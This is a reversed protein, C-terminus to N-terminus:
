RRRRIPKEEAVVVEQRTYREELAAHDGTWAALVEITITPWGWMAGRPHEGGKLCSVLSESCPGQLSARDVQPSGYMSRYSSYLADYKEELEPGSVGHRVTVRRLEGSQFELLMPVQDNSGVKPRCEAIAGEFQWTQQKTACAQEAQEPSMGLKFGAILDPPAALRAPATATDAQVARYERRGELENKLESCRAFAYWGYIASAGFVAMTTYGAYREVDHTSANGATEVQYGANSYQALAAREKEEQRDAYSVMGFGTFGIAMDAIPYGVKGCEKAARATRQDPASPPVKAAFVSCSAQTTAALLVIVRAALHRVNGM